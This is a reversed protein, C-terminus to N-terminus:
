PGITVPRYSDVRGLSAVNGKRRYLAAAAELESAADSTKGAAVLVIALDFHADGAMNLLDSRDAFAVGERALREAEALEGRAALVKARVGRWAMQSAVDDDATMEESAMTSRLADDLRGQRYQAEALLAIATSYMSQEGMRHLAEVAPRLAAEARAADGALLLAAGDHMHISALRFEIGLEEARAVADGLPKRAEDFRGAMSLLFGLGALAEPNPRRANGLVRETIEICREVPVPGHAVGLAQRQAAEREDGAERALRQGHEYAEVSEAVSGRRGLADGLLRYSAAVGATDGLRDLATAADHALRETEQTNTAEPSRWFRIDTQQLRMRWEAAEDGLRRADRLGEELVDEAGGADGAEFLATALQWSVQCRAPDDEHLLALARGLLGTAAPMDDRALARAGASRLRAAARDALSRTESDGFGLEVRFRHAAELHYGVIEEVEGMRGGATAELHDGFAEHADARAVKSMARYVGDRVLHHRFRFTRGGSPSERRLTILDKAELAELQGSLVKPDLGFVLLHAETFEIGVVSANELALREAAGLRDLRAGILAQVTPPIPFETLDSSAVWRGDQWHLLDDEILMAVLEELFLPHGEGAELIRARAAEDIEVRGLLNDVLWSSEEYDLPALALSMANMRGGGWGPRLELLEARAMCVVLLPFGRSAIALHEILDLLTAEAWHIDDFVLVSPHDGAVAEFFRRIAWFIESPVPSRDSLGLVSAVQEEIFEADDIGHVLAGVRARADGPEDDDGIGAAQRIMDAIPWFTIDRGYSLCRGTFTTASSRVEDMFEAVLRTKGVGAPGLLTVLVATREKTARGFAQRLVALEDKRGVLPSDFRRRELTIRDTEVLRYAAIPSSESGLLIIETPELGAAHEVLRAAGSSMLVEGPRAARALQEAEEIPGISLLREGGQSSEVLVDGLAIGMGAGPPAPGSGVSPLDAPAVRLEMAARIARLADDEHVQPVGFAAVVKDVVVEQVSGGHAEITAQARRTLDDLTARGAEPDKSPAEFGFRCVLAAVTKRLTRAGVPDVVIPADLAPDQALIQEELRRIAPGPEIGLETSLAHRLNTISDLAEAQRGARHLALVSLGRIREDLPFAMRLMELEPLVELHRGLALDAELRTARAALELEELEALESQPLGPISVNELPVGRWLRLASELTDRAAAHEGRGMEALGRDVLRRFTDLDLRDPGLHLVYDRERTELVVSDDGDLLKRLRSVHMQLATRATTPPEDGWLADILTEPSITHGARFLFVALLGRLKAGRVLLPAGDREVELPGLVRFVLQGPM